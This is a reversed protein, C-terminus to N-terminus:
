NQLSKLMNIPWLDISKTKRLYDALIYDMFIKDYDGEFYIFLKDM